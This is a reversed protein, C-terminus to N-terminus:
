WRRRQSVIREAAVLAVLMWWLAPRADRSRRSLTVTLDRSPLRQSPPPPVMGADRNVPEAVSIIEVPHATRPRTGAYRDDGDPAIMVITDNRGISSDAWALLTWPHPSLGIAAAEVGATRLSDGLRELGTPIVAVRRGAADRVTLQPGALYIAGLIILACRLLLLPIDRLQRQRRAATSGTVDAVSGVQIVTPPRQDRRHLLIPIAVAAAAALWAPSTWEM